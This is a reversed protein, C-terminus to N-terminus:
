RREPHEILWQDAELQTAANAAQQRAANAQNQADAERQRQRIEEQHKNYVDHQAAQQVSYATATQPDYHFRQQVEKPLDAFSLKSIGSKTKVTIGDIEVRTVTADKYEKGETTKYDGAMAPPPALRAQSPPPQPLMQQVGGKISRMWGTITNQLRDGWPPGSVDTAHNIPTPSDDKMAEHVFSLADARRQKQEYYQGNGEGQLTGKWQGASWIQFCWVIGFAPILILGIVHIPKM